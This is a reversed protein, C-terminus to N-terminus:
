NSKETKEKAEDLYKKVTRIDLQLLFAINRLSEKQGLKLIEQIQEETVKKPSQRLGHADRKEQVDSPRCGDRQAIIFPLHRFVAVNSIGIEKGIKEYSKELYGDPNKEVWQKVKEKNSM